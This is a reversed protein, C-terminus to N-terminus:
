ENYNKIILLMKKNAESMELAEKHLNTIQEFSMEDINKKNHAIFKNISKRFSKIEPTNKLKSTEERTGSAMIEGYINKINNKMENINKYYDEVQNLHENILITRDFQYIKVLEEISFNLENNLRYVYFLEKRSDAFKKFENITEWHWGKELGNFVLNLGFISLEKSEKRILLYNIVEQSLSDSVVKLIDLLVKTKFENIKSNEIMTKIVQECIEKNNPTYDFKIENYLYIGFANSVITKTVGMRTIQYHNGDQIYFNDAQLMNNLKSNTLLNWQKNEILESLKGQYGEISEVEHVLINKFLEEEIEVWNDNLLIEIKNDNIKIM